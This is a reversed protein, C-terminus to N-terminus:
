DYKDPLDSLEESLIFKDFETWSDPGIFIEDFGINKLEFIVDSSTQSNTTLNGGAVLSITRRLQYSDITEIVSKLSHIGHGNITSLVVLSPRTDRICEALFQVPTCPGLNRVSYGRKELELQVAILNWSHSDDPTTAVIALKSSSNM